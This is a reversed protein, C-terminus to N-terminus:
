NFIGVESLSPLYYIKSGLKKAEQDYFGLEQNFLLFDFEYKERDINRYINMVLTEAGGANLAGLCHLVKIKSM